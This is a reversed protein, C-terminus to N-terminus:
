TTTCKSPPVATAPGKPVVAEFSSMTGHYPSHPWQTALLFSITNDRQSFCLVTMRHMTLFIDYQGAAFFVIGGQSNANAANLAAAIGATDSANDDPTAGYDTVDHLSPLSFDDPIGEEGNKYGAYSYDILDPIGLAYTGTRRHIEELHEAHTPSIGGAVPVPVVIHRSDLKKNKEDYDM